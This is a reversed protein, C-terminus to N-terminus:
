GRKSVRSTEGPFLCVTYRITTGVYGDGVWSHYGAKSQGWLRPASWEVNHKPIVGFESASLKRIESRDQAFHCDNVVGWVSQYRNSGQGLPADLGSEIGIQSNAKEEITL